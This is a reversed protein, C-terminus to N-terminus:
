AGLMGMAVIAALADAQESDESPEARLWLGGGGITSQEIEVCQPLDPVTAAEFNRFLEASLRWGALEVGESRALQQIAETTEPRGAEKSAITRARIMGRLVQKGGTPAYLWGPLDPPAFLAGARIALVHTAAFHEAASVASNRLSDLAEDALARTSENCGPLDPLVCDIGSLDLRRMVEVTQRRLKNAEDFWAPLVLLRHARGQDLVLAMEERAGGQPLPCPWTAFM